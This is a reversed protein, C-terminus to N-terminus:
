AAVEKRSQAKTRGGRWVTLGKRELSPCYWVPEGPIFGTPDPIIYGSGPSGWPKRRVERLFVNRLGYGLIVFFRGKGNHVLVDGM